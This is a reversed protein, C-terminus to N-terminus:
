KIVLSLWPKINIPLDSNFRLPLEATSLSQAYAPTLFQQYIQAEPTDQKIFALTVGRILQRLSNTEEGRKERIIGAAASVPYAPDTISLHTAGIATLLYKSGRLQNFPRIQHTLAPTLADETGALILVPKAVKTLGNTGFLKGVLPNLAIASKVRQDQLDLQNEKLSAAACQLWDGPSEGFSLSTQCFERLEKLDVEGGVLALATYGGLSHGIVNVQETNLKGQLQGSQTNLKELENLLFSVDKPRDIFESAPLLQALNRQNAANNIAVSNSGPHEIAAVTIGHSALHRALFGFFQRNAGFGHSIVVLPAPTRSQSWYIDVPIRRDRQRDQLTLTQQEVPSKGTAAPDFTPQFPPNNKVLLERELLVGLAQSQLNSSNFELAIQLAQTADVTINQQPYARLFGIASLGNVQRLSLYLTSQLGEITSNPIATRLSTILQRGQPSRVLEDLFKDGLAPDVQLRRYLLEGVQPTLVFSFIQLQEPLKGTKAFKELDAIALSQQFPGLRITVTEAAQASPIGLSCSVGLTLSCLLGKILSMQPLHKDLWSYM